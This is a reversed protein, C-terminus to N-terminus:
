IRDREVPSAYKTLRGVEHLAGLTTSNSALNPTRLIPGPFQVKYCSRTATHLYAM